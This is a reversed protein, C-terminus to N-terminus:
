MLPDNKQDSRQLKRYLWHRWGVLGMLQKCLCYLLRLSHYHHISYRMLINAQLRILLHNSSFWCIIHVLNIKISSGLFSDMSGMCPHTYPLFLIKHLDQCTLTSLQLLLSSLFIIVNNSIGPRCFCWRPSQFIECCIIGIVFCPYM